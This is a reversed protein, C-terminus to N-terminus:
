KRRLAKLRIIAQRAEEVMPQLEPDADQWYEVFYEYSELAKDIEELQEYIKGLQRQSLPDISLTEDLAVYSRYVREADRLRGLEQYLRGLWLPVVLWPWNLADPGELMPLAATPQGRQWLGYGELARVAGGNQAATLSDAEGLAREARRELEAIADAHDSWRGRDAAFAGAHFVAFRPAVSDILARGLAQELTEEPIPLGVVFARYAARARWGATIAPDDLHPLAERLRGYWYASNGFLVFAFFNRWDDDSLEYLLRTVPQLAAHRPHNLFVRVERVFQWDGESRLRTMAATQAESDGFALDLALWGARVHLDDPDVRELMELRQATLASDGVLKCALETYHWLYQENRPDLEVAREFAQDIEEATALAGVNHFLIEGLLYWAEAEDPYTQVAQRLSEAVDPTEHLLYDHFARVLLAARAPLRDALEVARRIHQHSLTLNQDKPWWYAKSLQYHALAFTSDVEVARKYAERAAPLDFHRIHVEGELYAQLAEPSRSTLNALNIKPLDKEGAQLVVQLVDVALRDVLPLVNDPFGEVKAQGLRENTNVDYIGVVIRVDSDIAVVSGVL